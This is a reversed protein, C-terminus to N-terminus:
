CRRALSFVIIEAAGSEKLTRSCEIITAGTTVVDDVLIIKKGKALVKKKVRFANKVNKSRQDKPLMSQQKTNRVRQLIPKVPVDVLRSFRASILDAQNFGRSIRRFPYLPVPVIYDAGSCCDFFSRNERVHGDMTECLYQGCRFNKKFKFNIVLGDVPADYVLASRLLDYYTGSGGCDNCGVTDYVGPPLARGCVKCYPEGIRKIKKECASCVPGPSDTGCGACRFPFFDAVIDGATKFINKVFTKM